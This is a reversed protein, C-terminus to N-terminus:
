DLFLILQETNKRVPFMFYNAFPRWPFTPKGGWIFPAFEGKLSCITSFTLVPCIARLTTRSLYESIFQASIKGVIGLLFWFIRLNWKVKSVYRWLDVCTFNLAATYKLTEQPDRTSPCWVQKLHRQDSNHIKQLLKRCCFINGYREGFLGGGMHQRSPHDTFYCEKM